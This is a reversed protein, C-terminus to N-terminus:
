WDTPTRAPKRRGSQRRGSRHATFPRAHSPAWPSLIRGTVVSLCAAVSQPPHRSPCLPPSPAAFTEGVTMRGLGGLHCEPASGTGSFRRARCRVMPASCVAIAPNPSSGSAAARATTSHCADTAMTETTSHQCMRPDGDDDAVHRREQHRLQKCYQSRPAM